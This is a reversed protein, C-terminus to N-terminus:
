ATPEKFYAQLRALRQDAAAERIPTAAPLNNQLHCAARHAEGELTPVQERCIAQV